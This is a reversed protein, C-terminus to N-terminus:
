FETYPLGWAIELDAPSLAHFCAVRHAEPSRFSPQHYQHNTLFLTPKSRSFLGREVLLMLTSTQTPRRM